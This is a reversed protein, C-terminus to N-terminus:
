IPYYKQLEALFEKHGTNELSAKAKKLHGKLNEKADEVANQSM